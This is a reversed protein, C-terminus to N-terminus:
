RMMLNNNPDTLSFLFIFLSHSQLTSRIDHHDHNAHHHHNDDEADKDDDDHNPFSPLLISISRKGSISKRNFKVIEM